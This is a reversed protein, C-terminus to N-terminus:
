LQDKRQRYLNPDIVEKMADISIEDGLLDVIKTLEEDPKKLLNNYFIYSVQFHDRKALWPQIDKLHKEFLMEVEAERDPDFPKNLRELMKRESALIEKMERRMFVIRYQENDPLHYLLMSVMKFVKGRCDPLWSKDDRLTKVKEFEYYGLPNDIDAQRIEDTIVPLGGKDLMRMMMSTGSRPLGSVITIPDNM